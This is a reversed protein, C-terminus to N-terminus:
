ETQATATHQPLVHESPTSLDGKVGTSSQDLRLHQFANITDDDDGASMGHQQVQQQHPHPQLPPQQDQEYYYYPPAGVGEPVRPVGSGVALSAGPVAPAPYYAPPQFGYPVMYPMRPDVGYFGTNPPYYPRGPVSRAPAATTIPAKPVLEHKRYADGTNMCKGLLFLDEDPAAKVSEASQRDQFSVFGYGKSKGTQRDMIIKCDTVVGFTSFFNRLCAEDVKRSIGGVFVSNERLNSM